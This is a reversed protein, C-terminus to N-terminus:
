QVLRLMDEAAAVMAPLHAVSRAANEETVYDWGVGTGSLLSEAGLFRVRTLPADAQAAANIAVGYRLQAIKAGFDFDVLTGSDSLFRVGGFALKVPSLGVSRMVDSVLPKLTRATAPVLDSLNPLLDARPAKPSGPAPPLRGDALYRVALYRPGGCFPGPWSVTKNFLELADLTGPEAPEGTLMAYTREAVSALLAEKGVADLSAVYDILQIIGTEPVPTLLPFGEEYEARLLEVIQALIVSKAFM